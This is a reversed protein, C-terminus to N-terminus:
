NDHRIWHGSCTRRYGAPSPWGCHADNDCGPEDCLDGAFSDVSKCKPCGLITTENDFPNCAELMEPRTAIFNCETCRWRRQAGTFTAGM